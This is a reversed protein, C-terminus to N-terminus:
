QCQVTNSINEERAVIAMESFFALFISYMDVQYVQIYIYITCRQINSKHITEIYSLNLNLIHVPVHIHTIVVCVRYQLKNILQSKM